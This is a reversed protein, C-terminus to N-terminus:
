EILKLIAQKIKLFTELDLIGIKRELRKADMLRINSLIVTKQTGDSLNVNFYYRGEKQTSTLPVCLFVKGNFDKFILVPRVYDENKGNTEFGVNIGLSCWWIEREHYFVQGVRGDVAKKKINWGDFDKDM